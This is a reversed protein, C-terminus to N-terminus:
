AKAGYAIFHPNEFGAKGYTFAKGDTTELCGGAANLIAHGAATDWEMTRGFRTYIDASGEAIQCFKISSSSPKIEHLNLTDLYAQGKPSAPSRSKVLTLGEQPVERVTIENTQGNHERMAPSNKTAYYLMDTPPCYIVGLVPLHNQILAINVTYETEGRAFSRTGDLPDVLWFVDPAHTAMEEDEEAVITIDPTLKHLAATIHDNAQKDALTVPSDDAKRLVETNYPNHKLIIKGAEKAITCCPALLEKFNISHM